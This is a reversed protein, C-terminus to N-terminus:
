VATVGVRHVKSKCWTKPSCPVVTRAGYPFVTIATCGLSQVKKITAWSLLISQLSSSHLESILAYLIRRTRVCNENLTSFLYLHIYETANKHVAQILSSFRRPYCYSRRKILLGCFDQFRRPRYWVITSRRPTSSRPHISYVRMSTMSKKRQYGYKPSRATEFLVYSLNGSPSQNRFDELSYFCFGADMWNIRKLSFGHLLCICRARCIKKKM